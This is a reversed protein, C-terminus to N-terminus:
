LMTFNNPQQKDIGFPPPELKPIPQSPHLANSSSDGALSPVSLTFDTGRADRQESTGTSGIFFLDDNNNQPMHLNRPYAFSNQIASTSHTSSFELLPPANDDDIGDQHTLGLSNRDQEMLDRIGKKGASNVHPRTGGYGYFQRESGGPYYPNNNLPTYAISPSFYGSLGSWDLFKHFIALDRLYTTIFLIFVLVGMGILFFKASKSFPSSQPCLVPVKPPQWGDVCTDGPIRRYASALFVGSSVCGEQTLLKDEPVCELSNIARTFGFECEYDRETCTCNKRRVPRSFDRGNFCESTPKRRTFIIKKGLLCQDGTRGDTPSWTQYDSAVSDAAWSGKCLPQGLGDFDMHYIIGATGRTGYLLFEISSSNPEIVINDVNVLQDGLDFDYWSQGENWSFVVQNTAKTDDAMVILGGHDGFEYIYAGKHVESWTLGGDRSLYTNVQDENFNLHPGVNGTGMILGVANNVCYFPAFRHYNSIGHLHLWCGESSPSMSPHREKDSSLVETRNDKKRRSVSFESGDCTIPVGRSDITPPKLYSWLGGKDFSMVTRIIAEKRKRVSRHRKQIGTEFNNIDDEMDASDTEKESNMSKDQDKSVSDTSSYFNAIYVGELSAVSDFECEGLPGRVNQPLSLSYRIGEADSIYVNGIFVGDSTPHGHNVHIIVSEQSTDLISYSKEELSVPLKAEKFTRGGDRSVLLFVTQKKTDRVKAVFIYQNSILFKNGHDVLRHTTGTPSTMYYFDIADSWGSYAYQSPHDQERFPSRYQSFFVCDEQGMVPSGWSYQVAYNVIKTLTIGFDQTVFLDHRCAEKKTKSSARSSTSCGDTWHSLLAWSLRVPHFQFGHIPHKYQIQRFTHGADTSIFHSHKKGVVVIVDRSKPHLHFKAVRIGSENENALTAGPKLLKLADTWTRGSDTSRYFGGTRTRCLVTRFRAGLWQIDEIPSDFVSELVSVKKESLNRTSCRARLLFSLLLFGYIINFIQSPWFKISVM